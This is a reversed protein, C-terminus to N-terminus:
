VGASFDPGLVCGARRGAAAMLGSSLDPNAAEGFLVFNRKGLREAYERIMSSFRSCALAGM